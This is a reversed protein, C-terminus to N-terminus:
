SYVTNASVLKDSVILVNTEFWFQTAPKRHMENNRVIFKVPEVNLWNPLQQKVKNKSISAKTKQHQLVAIGMAVGVELVPKGNNAM